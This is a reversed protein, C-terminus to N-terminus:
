LDAFTNLIESRMKKLNNTRFTWITVLVEWLIFPIVALGLGLIKLLYLM